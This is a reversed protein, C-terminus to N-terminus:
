KSSGIFFSADARSRAVVIATRPAAAGAEAAVSVRAGDTVFGRDVINGMMKGYSIFPRTLTSLRKGPWLRELAWCCEEQPLITPMDVAMAEYM